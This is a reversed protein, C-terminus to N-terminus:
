GDDIQRAEEEEMRVNLCVSLRRVKLSTTPAIPYLEFILFFISDLRNPYRLPFFLFNDDDDDGVDDVRM